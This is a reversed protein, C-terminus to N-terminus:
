QIALGLMVSAHFVNGEHTFEVGGDYKEAIYTLNQLGLGTHGKRSSLYQGDHMRVIGDFGNDCTVALMSGSCLMHFRIFRSDGEAKAAATIANELLNGLLVSLDPAAINLHDPLDLRTTFRIAQQAAMDIYHSVVMNVVPDHCLKRIEYREAKSLYDSLYAEAQGTEGTQLYGYLTRMHHMLDHRLRRNIEISDHIRQYQENQLAIQQEMRLSKLQLQNREHALHSLYFAIAYVLFVLLIVAGYLFLAMPNEVLYIYDIFALGSALIGFLTLSLVALYGTERRSMGDSVPLYWKRLIQWLLPLFVCTVILNLLNYIGYYPLYEHPKDAYYWISACNTVSTILLASTIAFSFIFLKKQWAVRTAYIYWILCPVLGAMFVANVLQFLLQSDPLFSALLTGIIGFFCCVTGTLLGTIAGTKRNSFRFSGRFPLMCLVSYPLFQLMCGTFLRLFVSVSIGSSQVGPTVLFVYLATVSFSSATM